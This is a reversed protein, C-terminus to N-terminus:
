VASIRPLRLTFVAGGGPTNGATLSGHHVAILRAAIALGLGSGTGETPRKAGSRYFRDFVRELEAQPIGPGDDTVTVLASGNEAACTVTIRGGEETHDVANDLLNLLAQLLMDHDGRVPLSKDADVSMLRRGLGQAKVVAEDVLETLDLLEHARTPEGELRALALLDSVLQTMRDLESMVLDLTEEQEATAHSTERMVDLHGRVITLPTRLEHSADALFRRQEWFGTELRDLMSNLAAVMIGVDDRPGEYSVREWLSSQTVAGATRAAEHLPRLSTRAVFRSLLAGLLTVLLGAVILARALEGTMTNHTRMPLAAQFVAVVTNSDRLPVTAVRYSRDGVKLTNFSRVSTAPALNRKNGPLDEFHLDSNSLVQGGPFRVLLMVGSSEGASRAELYKRSIEPLNRADSGATAGLAAAFAESERLLTRDLDAGLQRDLVIYGLAAVLAVGVAISGTVALAVRTGASLRRTFRVRSGPSVIASV